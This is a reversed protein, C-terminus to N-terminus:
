VKQFNKYNVSLQSEVSLKTASKGEVLMNKCTIDFISGCSRLQVCTYRTFFADGLYSLSFDTRSHSLLKKLGM